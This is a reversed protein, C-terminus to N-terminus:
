YLETTDSTGIGGAVSELDEDSLERPARQFERIAEPTIDDFGTEAAIAVVDDISRAASVRSLLEPTNKVHEAFAEISTM